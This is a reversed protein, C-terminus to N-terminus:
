FAHGDNGFIPSNEGSQGNEFIHLHTSVESPVLVLNSLVDFPHQLEKRSELFPEMLWTDGQTPTFLLHKGHRPGEKGVGIYKQHILRRHAKGRKKHVLLKFQNLLNVLLLGGDKHYLLVSGHRKGNRISPIDKM